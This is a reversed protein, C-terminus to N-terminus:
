ERKNTLESNYLISICGRGVKGKVVLYNEHLLIKSVM